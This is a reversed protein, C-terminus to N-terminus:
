GITRRIDAVEVSNVGEIESIKNELTETSGKNEDMVFTINLSNLGFAVPEKETRLETEGCFSKIEEGAKSEIAYLDIDPSEPMIKLKVIVSAM